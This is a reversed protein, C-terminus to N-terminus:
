LDPKKKFLAAFPNPYLASVDVVRWHPHLKRCDDAWAPMPESRFLLVGNEEPAAWAPCVHMPYPEYARAGTLYRIYMARIDTLVLMSPPIPGIKERLGLALHSTKRMDMFVFAYDSRWNPQGLSAYNAHVRGAESLGSHILLGLVAIALLSTPLLPRFLAKDVLPIAALVFFPFAVALIRLDMPVLIQITRALIMYLLYSAAWFFPLWIEPARIRSFSGRRIAWVLTAVMAMSLPIELTARLGYDFSFLIHELLDSLTSLDNLWRFSKPMGGRTGGSINGSIMWNRLWLPFVFAVSLMIAGAAHMFRRSFAASSTAMVSIGLLPIFPMGAYRVLNAFGISAAALALWLFKEDQTRYKWFAAYALLLLPVFLTESWAHGYILLSTPVCANVAAILFAVCLRRSVMWAIWFVALTTIGLLIPNLLSPVSDIDLSGLKAVLAWLAPYGPPWVLLPTFEPSPTDVNTTQIPHDAMFNLAADRYYLTDITYAVQGASAFWMLLWGAGLAAILAAVMGMGQGTAARISIPTSPMTRKRRNIKAVHYTKSYWNDMMASFHALGEVVAVAIHIGPPCDTNLLHRM